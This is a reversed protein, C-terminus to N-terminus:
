PRPGGDRRPPSSSHSGHGRHLLHMLPCALLLVYPLVGFVHARHDIALLVAAVAGVCATLFWLTRRSPTNM